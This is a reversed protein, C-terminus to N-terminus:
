RRGPGSAPAAVPVGGMLAVTFVLGLWILGQFTRTLDVTRTAPANVLQDVWSAFVNAASGAAGGSGNGQGGSNLLAAVVMWVSGTLLLAATILFDIPRLPPRRRGAGKLSPRVLMALALLLLVVAVGLAALPAALRATEVQLQFPKVPASSAPDGGSPSGTQGPAAARPPASQSVVPTGTLWPAVPRPLLAAGLVLACLAAGLWLWMQGQPVRDSRRDDSGPRAALGGALALPLLPQPALLGLALVPVLGRRQGEELHTAGWNLAVGALTWILYGTAQVVLAGMGAHSATRASLILSLATVIMTVM